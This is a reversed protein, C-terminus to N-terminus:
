IDPVTARVQQYVEFRGLKRCWDEIYTYDLLAGQVSMVDRADLQDKPRAWRLKQVVVDEPTPIWVERGLVSSYFRVRREFRALAFEENTREFFEVRFPFAARAVAEHRISGGIGEFSTQPDFELIDELAKMLGPMVTRDAVDVVFDADKTSRPIGYMNSSFSGVLMYPVKTDELVNIVAKTIREAEIM